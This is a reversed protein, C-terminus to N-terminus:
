YGYHLCIFEDSHNYMCGLEYIAAVLMLLEPYVGYEMVSRLHLVFPELEMEKLPRGYMDESIDVDGETIFYQSEPYLEIIEELHSDSGLNFVALIKAWRKGLKPDLQDTKDVIYIRHEYAM